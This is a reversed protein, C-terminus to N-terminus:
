EVNSETSTIQTAYERMGEQLPKIQALIFKILYKFKLSYITELGSKLLDNIETCQDVAYAWVTAFISLNDCINKIDPKMTEFKAQVKPLAHQAAVTTALDAKATDLEAQVNNRQVIFDALVGAPIASLITFPFCVGLAIAAIKIKGNLSTIQSEFNNIQKEYKTADDSLPKDQAKMYKTFDGSFDEIGNRLDKFGDAIKTSVGIPHISIFLELLAKADGLTSADNVAQVILLDIEFDTLTSATDAALKRSSWLLGADGSWRAMLKNWQPLYTKGVDPFYNGYEKVLDVFDNKVTRFDDDIAVATQGINKCEEAFQQATTPDELFEIWAEQDEQSLSYWGM